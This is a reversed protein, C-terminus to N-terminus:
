SQLLNNPHVALPPVIDCTQERLPFVPVVGRQIQQRRDDIVFQMAQRRNRDAAFAVVQRQLRRGENVFGVDLDSSCM